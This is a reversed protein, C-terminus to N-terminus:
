ESLNLGDARECREVIDGAMVLKVGCRVTQEVELCGCECVAGRDGRARVAYQEAGQTDSAVRLALLVILRPETRDDTDLGRLSRIHLRM